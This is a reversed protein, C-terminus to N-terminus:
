SFNRTMVATCDGEFVSVMAFDEKYECEELNADMALQQVLPVASEPGEAETVGIYYEEGYQTAIYDPYILVVTYRNADAKHVMIDILRHRMKLYADPMARISSLGEDDGAYDGEVNGHRLYEETDEIAQQLAKDLLLLDKDTLEVKM